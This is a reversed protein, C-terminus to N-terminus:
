AHGEGAKKKVYLAILRATDEVDRVDITEVPTHMYRQPVSLLACPIGSESLSLADANTGTRGGMVEPQYAIHNEKAIQMLSQTMARNLVPSIGLMPGRGLEGCTEKKCGPSYAFSVDVSISEDAQRGFAAVKAGRMGLEEQATFLLTVKCPVDKLQEAALLLAAVGCRDDLCSASIRDGKLPVFNRAFTIRDGPSILAQAAEKKMGVDITLTEAQPVSNAADKKQLHPPLVSIIGHCDEKGHVIVEYGPLMRDDVGGCKSFKIFGDETVATVILGIEDLHAELLIHYGAGFTCSVNQMSDTQVTGYEKLKGCLLRAIGDESGAVGTVQTLEKLLDVTKQM